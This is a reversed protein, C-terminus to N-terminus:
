AGQEHPLVLTWILGVEIKAYIVIINAIFPM